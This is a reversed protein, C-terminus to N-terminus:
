VTGAANEEDERIDKYHRDGDSIEGERERDCGGEGEKMEKSDRDRGGTGERKKREGETERDKGVM